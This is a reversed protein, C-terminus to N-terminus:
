GKTNVALYDRFTPEDFVMVGVWLLLQSMFILDGNFKSASM